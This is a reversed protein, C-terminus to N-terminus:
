NQFLFVPFEKYARRIGNKDAKGDTSVVYWLHNDLIYRAHKDCVPIFDGHGLTLDQTAYNNCSGEFGCKIPNKNEDILYKTEKNNMYEGHILNFNLVINTGIKINM